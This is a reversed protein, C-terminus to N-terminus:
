YTTADIDSKEGGVIEIVVKNPLCVISEKAYRIHAHKVCIQDPCSAEDMQVYGGSISFHNFSGDASKIEYEGDESLPFRGYENGDVTVIAFATEDTNFGQWIRVAAMIFLAGIIIGAILIFDNKKM